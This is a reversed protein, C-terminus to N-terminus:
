LPFCQRFIKGASSYTPIMLLSYSPYSLHLTHYIMLMYLFHSLDLFVAKLYVVTLLNIHPASMKLKSVNHNIKLTIKLWSHAIGRFGYFHLKDLLISHDVTDFAKKFDIFTGITYGRTNFALSINDVLDIIAMSTSHNKRFGYQHDFLINNKNIFNLFRNYLLKELIKSFCPLISIPRYNIFQCRDDAKFVLIVKAIQLLNPVIGTSISKNFITSLSLAILDICAKVISINIGDVGESRSNKM